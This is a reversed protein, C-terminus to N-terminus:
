RHGSDRPRQLQRLGRRLSEIEREDADKQREALELTELVEDMDELTQKLTEIIHSVEEIAKKVGAATAPHWEPAPPPSHPHPKELKDAPGAEVVSPM